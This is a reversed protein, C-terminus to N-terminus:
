LLVTGIPLLVSGPLLTVQATLVGQLDACADEIGGMRQDELPLKGAHILPEHSYIITLLCSTAKLFGNSVHPNGHFRM